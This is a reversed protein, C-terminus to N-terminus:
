DSASGDLAGSFPDPYSQWADSGQLMEENTLLCSDLLTHLADRNVDPGTFSLLQLRDGLKPYWDLSAAVRRAAPVLDWAAAPLAALWPVHDKIALLGAVGDWSLMTHPRNAMWFRGRSRVAAAALENMADYLRAPHFPRLRRWTVTSVGGSDQDCPLRITAPDVRAALAAVDVPADVPVLPSADLHRLPTGAGLHRLITTATATAQPDEVACLVLGSAYEIQRCLVEAVRREDEPSTTLARVSLRDPSSIDILLGAADVATLVAVLHIGPRAPIREAVAAPEVSDWTELILLRADGTLREVSHLIDERITCSVCDHAPRVERRERAGWADFVVRWVVGHAIDRLDHHVAVSHPTAALLRQVVEGRAQAHLGGVLVVPVSAM